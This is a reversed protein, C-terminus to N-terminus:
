LANEQADRTVTQSPRKTLAHHGFVFEFAQRDDVGVVTFFNRNGDVAVAETFGVYVGNSSGQAL